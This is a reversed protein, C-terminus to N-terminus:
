GNDEWKEIMSKIKELEERSPKYNGMAHLLLNGTNGGFVANVVNKVMHQQVADPNILARYIHSRSSEDRDLFGKDHM